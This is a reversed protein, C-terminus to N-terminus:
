LPPISVAHLSRSGDAAFVSLIRGNGETVTNLGRGLQLKTESLELGPRTVWILESPELFVPRSLFFRDQADDLWLGRPEYNVDFEYVLNTTGDPSVEHLQRYVRSLVFLTGDDSFVLENLFPLQGPMLVDTFSGTSPDLALLRDGGAAQATGIIQGAFEGWGPPAIAIHEFDLADPLNAVFEEEGVGDWRYVGTLDVSIYLAQEAEHFALDLVGYNMWEEFSVVETITGDVRDVRLVPSGANLLGAGYFLDCDFGFTIAGVSMPLELPLELEPAVCRRSACDENCGDGPVLNGDDCVEAGEVVGDGCVSPREQEPGTSSESSEEGRTAGTSTSPGASTGPTEEGTSVTSSVEEGSSGGEGTTGTNLGSTAPRSTTSGSDLSTGTESGTSDACATAVLLALGM